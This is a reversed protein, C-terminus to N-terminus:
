NLMALELSNEDLTRAQAVKQRAARLEVLMERAQDAFASDSEVLDELLLIAYDLRGQEISEQAAELRTQELLRQYRRQAGAMRASDTCGILPLVILVALAILIFQKHTM